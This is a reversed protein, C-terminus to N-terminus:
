PNKREENSRTARVPLELYLIEQHEIVPYTEANGIRGAPPAGPGTEGAPNEVSVKYVPVRSRSPYITRGTAIDFEFHHWPCSLIEGERVWEVTYRGNKDTRMESTGAVTGECLPAGMHPCVNRVAYFRGDVNFVGIGPGPEPHVIKRGGPPIETAPGVEFRM